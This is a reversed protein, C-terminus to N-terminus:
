HAAVFGLLVLMASMASHGCLDVKFFLKMENQTKRLMFWLKNLFKQHCKENQPRTQCSADRKLRRKLWSWCMHALVYLFNWMWLWYCQLVILYYLTQKIRNTKFTDNNYNSINSLSHAYKYKAFLIFVSSSIVVMVRCCCRYLSFFIRSFFLCLLSYRKIKTSFPANIAVLVFARVRLRVACSKHSALLVFRKLKNCFASLVAFRAFSVLITSLKRIKQEVM